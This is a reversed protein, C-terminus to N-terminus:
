LKSKKGQTENRQMVIDKSLEEHLLYSDIAKKRAEGSPIKCLKLWYPKPAPCKYFMSLENNLSYPKWQSLDQSFKSCSFMMIMNKVKSVDWGSIDGNFCSEDFMMTMSEVNSTNWKSIDGNFNSCHFLREMDTIQSVDIHNLDCKNGNDRIEWEIYRRLQEKNRAVIKEKM